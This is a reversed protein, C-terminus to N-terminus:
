RAQRACCRHWESWVNLRRGKEQEQAKVLSVITQESSLLQFLRTEDLFLGRVQWHLRQRKRERRERERCGRGRASRECHTVLPIGLSRQQAAANLPDQDARPIDREQGEEGFLLDRRRGRATKTM